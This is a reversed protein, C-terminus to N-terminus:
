VRNEHLYGLDKCVYNDQYILHEYGLTHSIVDKLESYLNYIQFLIDRPLISYVIIEYFRSLKKLQQELQKPWIQIMAIYTQNEIKCKLQKVENM